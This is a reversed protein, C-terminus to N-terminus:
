PLDPFPPKREDLMELTKSKKSLHTASFESNFAIIPHIVFDFQQM